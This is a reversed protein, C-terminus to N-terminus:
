RRRPKVTIEGNVLRLNPRFREAYRLAEDTFGGQTKIEKAGRAAERKVDEKSWKLYWCRYGLFWPKLCEPSVKKKACYIRKEFSSLICGGQRIKAM